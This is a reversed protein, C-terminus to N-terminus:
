YWRYGITFRWMSDLYHRSIPSYGFHSYGDWQLVVSWHSQGEWGAALGWAAGWYDSQTYANFGYHTTQVSYQAGLFWDGYWRRAQLGMTGNLERVNIYGNPLFLANERASQDSAQLYPNLSWHANVDYQADVGVTWGSGNELGNESQVRYASGLYLGFGNNPMAHACVTFLLLATIALLRLPRFSLTNKGPRM